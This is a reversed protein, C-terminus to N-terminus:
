LKPKIYNILKDFSSSKHLFILKKNEKGKKTLIKKICYHKLSMLINLFCKEEILCILIIDVGCNEYTGLLHDKNHWELYEDRPYDV